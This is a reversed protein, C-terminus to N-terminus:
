RGRSIAMAGSRVVSVIDGHDNLADICRDIRQMSGAIELTCYQEGEDLLRGSYEDLLAAFAESAGRSRRLKVLALEREIHEGHTMDVLSVVDVLKLLQSCIQHIVADSGITVLTLRSVTNDQTPAVQLSEINYGRSSFMGAVRTLAGAENQLHISITHRM